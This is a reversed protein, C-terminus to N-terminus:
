ALLGGPRKQRLLEDQVAQSVARGLQESKPSDGQTKTGSADVNVTVNTVGGGGGTSMVGLKGDSGRRLPMIAEPGAEGMLGTSMAGGKAFKFLTPSNVIGGKAFPQIGNQAFVGGNAFGFNPGAAGKGTIPNFYGGGFGGGGSFGPLVGLVQNLIAMTIMKAIMQAAMELFMDALSQFFNGLAQRATMSGDIIGKFSTTFASGIGDAVKVAMNGLNTLEAAEKKLDNIRKQVIDRPNTSPTNAKALADEAANRKATEKPLAALQAQLVAIVALAESLQRQLEAKDKPAAAAIRAELQTRLALQSTLLTNIRQMQEATDKEIQVKNLEAQIREPSLGQLQLKNRLTIAAIDDYTAKTTEKLAKLFDGAQKVGLSMSQLREAERVGAVYDAQAKTTQEILKKKEAASLNERASVGDRIQALEKESRIIQVNAQVALATREPDFAEASALAIAEYTLRAETLSDQYGELEVKNFAAKAIEEFAAATKAETLAAQLARLREMAGSLSRVAAAYKEVAPAAVASFDPSSPPTPVKGAQGAQNSASTLHGLQARRGDPGMIEMGLGLAGQIGMNRSTFGPALTFPTNQPTLYDIGGHSSTYGRSTGYQSAKAGDPFVLAQDIFARLAAETM